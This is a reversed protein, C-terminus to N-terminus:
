SFSKTRDTSTNTAVRQVFLLAVSGQIIPLTWYSFSLVLTMAGMPLGGVVALIFIGVPLSLVILPLLNQLALMILFKRHMALTKESLKVNLSSLVKRCKMVCVAFTGYSIAYTPMVCEVAFNIMAKSHDQSPMLLGGIAVFPECGPQHIDRVLDDFSNAPHFSLFYPTSWLLMAACIAYSYLFRKWTNLHPKCLAFFQILCSGPICQFVSFTSYFSSYILFRGFSSLSKTHHTSANCNVRQVFMLAVSGQIIPLTWYSFSLVLTMAGMPLGCVVALIFIGVPISLVILPLLNQMALMILFKRHMALTKDSIKVNFIVKRCKMVCMAFTGYSIAYTPIVCEVAFNVMAKPHDETPMLQGGIAVFPECGPQHIDRVLDDFSRTTHFSLFYPTSWLLMAICLAYSYLFRQLTKFHPKCLAFYQIFCSGPICQFVSFTSYFSSYMLFHGFSEDLTAIFGYVIIIFNEYQFLHIMNSLFVVVGSVLVGQVATITICIRYALLNHSYNRSWLLYILVCNIATGIAGEINDVLRIVGPWLAMKLRGNVQLVFKLAVSGQIIPLTWYSFSMILTILGMGYGGIVVIFFITFPVSLVVLPVLNQMALLILFRRHMTLTKESLKVEFASLAQRSKHVCFAFTGYSIIYTPIICEAAFNAIGKPHEESPMLVGGLAVFADCNPPNHSQLVTEDFDPSPYFNLLYPTSWALMALCLGYSISLKRTNSFYPKCLSFYQLLCSGPILMWVCATTMLSFYIFFHGVSQSIIAVLGFVLVLFHNYHFLHVTNALATVVGSILLGQISTITICIRYALLNASYEMSFIHCDLQTYCGSNRITYTRRGFSLTGEFSDVTRIIAPWASM